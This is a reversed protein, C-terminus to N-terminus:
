IISENGQAMCYGNVEAEEDGTVEMRGILKGEIVHKLCFNGHM